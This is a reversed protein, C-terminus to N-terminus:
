TGLRCPSASQSDMLREDVEKFVLPVYRARSIFSGNDVIYQITNGLVPIGKWSPLRWPGDNVSGLNRFLLALVLLLLALVGASPLPRAWLGAIADKALNMYTMKTLKRISHPSHQSTTALRSLYPTSVKTAQVGYISPIKTWEMRAQSSPNPNRDRM